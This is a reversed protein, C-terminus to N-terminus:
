IVEFKIILVYWNIVKGDKGILFKIFNWKIGSGFIGKSNNILYCFIVYVEFGKVDVKFFM